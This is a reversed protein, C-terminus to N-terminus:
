FDFQAGIKLYRALAIEVPQRFATFNVNERLVSNTNFLNVVDFNVVTRTKNYKFVKAIRFDLQNLREGYDTSVPNGLLTQNWLAPLLSVLQNGFNLPTGDPRQNVNYMAQIPPGPLSFFTGSLLVDVKPLTYSGNGKWQMLWPSEIGCYNFPVMVPGSSGFPAQATILSEPVKSVVDCQDFATRGINFGGFFFLGNQLRANVSVDVGNWHETETGYKKALTTFNQQAVVKNEDFITLQQGSTSLGPTTPVTINFPTYDNPGLALNDIVQFNGYWRRFYGVDLSVRPIIQRQVSAGVEWNYPRKGWGYYLDHDFQQANPDVQGFSPNIFPMCVDGGPSVQLGGNTLDCQPIMDGSGDIWVRPTSNVLRNIPNLGGSGAFGALNGVTQAQLYKNVSVKVATKGDGTVDWSVGSRTTIDQWHSFQTYPFDVDPRNPTLPTAGVMHQPPSSAKYTDYRLGLNITFRDLTWRDQAFIGLDYNQDSKTHIPRVNEVILNVPAGPVINTIFSYPSYNYVTSDLYGVSDSFGVKLQHGGTVYSAAARFFFNPVWNNNYQLFNGHSWIGTSSDIIPVLAGSTLVAQQAESVFDDAVKANPHMFGWRETRHLLLGEVLLKDTVPSSYEGHLLRQTPSRFNASAEPTTTASILWPTNKTDGPCSCRTEQDWTFGVKNKPTAQLTVRIQGDTWISANYGPQSKDYDITYVNPTFGNKNVWVGGAYQDARNVRGTFYFWMRSKVLPGGFGPNVDYLKKISNPSPLGRAILDASLNSAEMGSTSYSFFSTGSFTNGGDRPIYNIRVGGQSQEASIGSTDVTVESAMGPNPVAIGIDGSAQLTMTNVGNQMVRQDGPRSGHISLSAMPDGLAGGSDVRTSNVGAFLQGLNNYNRGTPLASIVERTMVQQKTTNQTEVTPTEGTVTISESVNGVRLEVSLTTVQEGALQVNERKIPAFGTLTFTVTYTGPRLNVITYQGSGESVTTRVKEILTPSAAEVTVGPLVAGSTDRVVGSLTAQASALAPILVGGVFWAITWLRQMIDEM